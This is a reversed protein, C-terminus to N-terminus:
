LQPRYGRVGAVAGEGQREAWVRAGAWTRHNDVGEARNGQVELAAPATGADLVGERTGARSLQEALEVEPAPSPTHRVQELAVLHLSHM